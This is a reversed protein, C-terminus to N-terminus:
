ELCSIYYNFNHSSKKMRMKQNDTSNLNLMLDLEKDVFHVVVIHVVGVFYAVEELSNGVM